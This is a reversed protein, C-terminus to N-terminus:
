KKRMKILLWNKDKFHILVYAGKLKKGHLVVEVHGKKIAGKMTMPRGQKSRNINEYHGRDYIAVTGGGYEGKPITGFFKAYELPHDETHIALHKEKSTKPFGKPVAWSKLVGGVELRFDYHLRRAAHKQVVFILKRATKKVKGKPEATKSFDRKKRYVSLKKM